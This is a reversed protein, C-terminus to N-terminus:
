HTIKELKLSQEFAYLPIINIKELRAFNELSTRIGFKCKKEEMFIRLSHMKGKIGSKVEIPVIRNGLEIVYDVEAQSGKKERQWYYLSSAQNNPQSKILELGTYLEAIVGKNVM